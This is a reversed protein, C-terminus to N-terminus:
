QYLKNIMGFLVQCKLSMMRNWILPLAFLKLLVRNFNRDIDLLFKRISLGLILKNLFLKEELPARTQFLMGNHTFFELVM